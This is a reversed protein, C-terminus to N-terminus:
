YIQKLFEKGIAREEAPSVAASVRDGLQPLLLEKKEDSLCFLSLFTIFIYITIKM